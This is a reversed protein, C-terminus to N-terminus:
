FDRERERKLVTSTGPVTTSSRKARMCLYCVYQLISVFMAFSFSELELTTVDEVVAERLVLNAPNLLFFFVILVCITLRSLSPYPYNKREDKHRIKM